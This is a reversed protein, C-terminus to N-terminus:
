SMVKPDFSSDMGPQNSLGGPAVTNFVMSPKPVPPPLAAALKQCLPNDPGYITHVGVPHMGKYQEPPPHLRGSILANNLREMGIEELQRLIDQPQM